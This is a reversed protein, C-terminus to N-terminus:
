ELPAIWPDQAPELLGDLLPVQDVSGIGGLVVDPPGLVVDGAVLETGLLATEAVERLDDDVFRPLGHLRV